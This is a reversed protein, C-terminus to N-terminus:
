TVSDTHNRSCHPLSVGANSHGLIEVEDVQLEPPKVAEVHYHEPSNVSGDTQQRSEVSEASAEGSSVPTDRNKWTGKLRVAAGFQM